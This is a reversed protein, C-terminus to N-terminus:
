EHKKHIRVLSLSDIFLYTDPVLLSDKLVCVSALITNVVKDPRSVLSINLTTDNRVVVTQSSPVSFVTDAQQYNMSLSAVLFHADPVDHVHLRWVISDGAVYNSDAKVEWYRTTQMKKEDFIHYDNITWLQVSDGAESVGFENRSKADIDTWYLIENQLNRQVKTYVKVLYQLNQGYWVLSSDYQARTVGQKVLVAAIISQQFENNNSVSGNNQQLELLGESRHVDTLVDIMKQEDLVYDPRSICSSCLCLIPIIYIFFRHM